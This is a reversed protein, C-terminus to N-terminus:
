LLGVDTRLRSSDHDFSLRSTRANFTQVPQGTDARWLRVTDDISASAVLTSDPSFVVSTVTRSHGKLTQVPQGTDARWLRVTRDYSASAVLTSDPSFVASSVLGSHGKLTQVPQGTDARWLRVTLDDSASAVLTSDPSFVVSTVRRSHGKLTQVPQGTDARWLRVTGDNSASAVLTSDPTSDPSFVVSTVPGSHGKLTQVPQGTDARWLRVTGDDSASAVLTSDPSFVVSRAWFSHDELMQVPQGTDARWLRVTRDDSASAVLTSNPSFVVSTVRGSHGELMQVPQGTDARWLRVTRDYSASAVLTSDPSFVASSVWGSHGKLTQVPQGTDARWLRVTGDESASAVLTSDPSFVVSTGSFSHGKLTQVPQGTDARWLRVTHDISASAVLTSDPSFVVSTVRDSHGELMQVPQGTDARWLRVTRDYSASAVLTSDPSFVVSRVRQSHGELMQVPQGTDARWLRVTRDDSASAVLTSDPSFVVSTVPGSHGKLTQVPQGTDARWLRVTGDNSASAVLTSDLTSDPSFGVSTVPGSHGKLTQVPQGMEARWLRVTGDDSASAVLTSDPSFVVSTVRDSHGELMQVPQGTDARWLRVTRDDSASAVLTSDPSFVVSTVLLSHGELTQLCVDWGKQLHASMVRLCNTLIDQHMQKEDIWLPTEVRTEPDVLFDRFSLHLLRIPSKSSPPVHLVSHLMRLRVDIENQPVDLMQALASASLPSALTIITGVVQRFQRIVEDKRNKPLSNIQRHLVPLYTVSYGSSASKGKHDLIDKLSREPHYTGDDIFRCATVASIFLPTTISTLVKIQSSGPWDPPLKQEEAATGNYNDRISQFSHELFIHIDREIIQREIEHLILDHYTDQVKSFGLRIPLEPRSTMFVRLWPPRLTQARAFLNIVLKIENDNDCEDLADIVVVLPASLTIKSLPEYILKQFQEQIASSLITSEAEIAAKLMPAIRPEKDAMQRVITTIFRCVNGRDTEGRKFFFSAGLERRQDLLSAITRSITSKGTGAMGNLWFIPKADPNHVWSSIQKLLEVRTNALCIFNEDTQSKFSAGEAIPLRNLVMNQDVRSTVSHIIPMKEKMIDTSSQINELDKQISSLVHIIKHTTQLQRPEIYSLLEKAYAAATASAYQQWKDNKHSDAYDCIGRIVLCPFSNMLGAAEMEVCLCGGIDKVLQDRTSVDKVLCNGSAIIGYHIKPRTDDRKDRAIEWSPDCKDCIDGGAHDHASKFLRDNEFGQHIFGPYEQEVKKMRPNREWMTELLDPVKSPAILHEAQIASVAHLLVSPPANLSGKREWTKDPRAGGLDYQIVGGMTRDPQSVVVDGLRIDQYPPQAIGGGIGVLLGIRIHPLSSLLNSATTAAPTTGYSGAPLSAIAVNQNSMWGWTYSNADTTHQQFDQPADHREDLLAIAAAREIPLAAIWAIAYAEPSNLRKGM